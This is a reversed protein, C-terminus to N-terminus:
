IAIITKPIRLKVASGPPYTKPKELILSVINGRVERIVAPVGDIETTIGELFLSKQAVHQAIDHIPSEPVKKLEPLKLGLVLENGVTTQVTGEIFLQSMQEPQKAPKVAVCATPLVMVSLLLIILPRIMKIVEM